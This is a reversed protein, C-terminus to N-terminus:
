SGDPTLPLATLFKKPSTSLLYSFHGLLPNAVIPVGCLQWGGRRVQEFARATLPSNSRSEEADADACGREPDSHGCQVAIARRL